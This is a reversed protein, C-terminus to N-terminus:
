GYLKVWEANREFREAAPIIPCSACFHRRPCKFYLCCAARKQCVKSKDEWAVTYLEPAALRIEDDAGLIAIAEDMGRQRDGLADGIGAFQAAWSSTVMAWLAHRSFRSWRHHAEVIPEAFATLGELMRARVIEPPGSEFVADRIWIAELMTMPSFKLAYDRLLTARGRALYVAIVFGSAWGLRLLLSASAARRNEGFGAAEFRKLLDVVLAQDPDTLTAGDIWGERDAPDAEVRLRGLLSCVSKIELGLVPDPRAPELPNFGDAM